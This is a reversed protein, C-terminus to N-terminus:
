ILLVKTEEDEKEGRRLSLCGDFGGQHFILDVAAAATQAISLANSLEERKGRVVKIPPLFFFPSFLTVNSQSFTSM